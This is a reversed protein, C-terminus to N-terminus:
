CVWLLLWSCVVVVALICDTNFTGQVKPIALRAGRISKLINKHVENTTKNKKWQWQRDDLLYCVRKQLPYGPNSNQGTWYKQRETNPHVHDVRGEQLLPPMILKSYTRCFRDPLTISEVLITVHQVAYMVRLFCVVYLKNKRAYDRRKLHICNLNDRASFKFCNLFYIVNPYLVKSDGKFKNAM